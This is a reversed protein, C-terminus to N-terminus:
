KLQWVFRHGSSRQQISSLYRTLLPAGRVGKRDLNWCRTPDASCRDVSISLTTAALLEFDNGDVQGQDGIALVAGACDAAVAELVAVKGADPAVVDVAHGSALVKCEITPPRALVSRVLPLLQTGSLHSDPASVSVQTQRREVLLDNALGLAELRDAAEALPGHCNAVNPPNDALKLLLTGNYLGVHVSPWFVKPLWTRTTEHLSRGRGTAFGVVIGAELLRVVQDQVDSPPPRFRDWTPVCTGDYDLVIGAVREASAIQLWAKLAEEFVPRASGNKDSVFLKRSIPDPQPVSLLKKVPLHYLRRGFEQVGPKGPDVGHAHGATSTLQMSQVLLDLVSIPWELESRLTVLDVDPPLIDLTSEAIGASAPDVVGVVTVESLNRVLGVHRGHALNRYDALQVSALGTEVLRAEVDVGISATGPGTLVLCSERIRASLQQDFAPLVAPLEVDHAICIAAAM